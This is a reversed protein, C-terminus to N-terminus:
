PNGKDGGCVLRHPTSLYQAKSYDGLRVHVAVIDSLDFRGVAEKTSTKTISDFYELVYDYNAKLDEFYNGLGTEIMTNRSHLLQFKKWGTIGIDDFLDGYFRKDKEMRLWPGISFKRWTPAIFGVNEKKSRIYARAAVFM